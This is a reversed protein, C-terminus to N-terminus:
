PSADVPKITRTAFFTAIHDALRIQDKEDFWDEYFGTLIFGAQLQGGILDDLTHGFELPDGNSKQRDLIAAKRQELDSYPLRYRVALPAGGTIEEWEFLFLIPNVMGALLIGGPRLVRYAEAWVPHVDSVFLNSVPHVILDFCSDQFASLDAMDGQLTDISLHERNAVRRDQELQLDSNDFVTVLAGAAALVPGQQGGGSALCLVRADRLDPFWARPVPITPTLLISWDGQRAKAIVEHGVPITWVNGTEVQRNWAARNYDLVNM